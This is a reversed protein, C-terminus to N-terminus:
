SHGTAGQKFVRKTPYQEASRLVHYIPVLFPKLFPVTLRIAIFVPVLQAGFDQKILYTTLGMEIKRAGISIATEIIKDIIYYYLSDRQSINRGVYLWRLLDGDKLLLVHGVLKGEAYFLLALSNQGMNQSVGAYFQPTLVERKLEKANGHVNHWQRCLEASLGSFDEVLEHTINKERNIKLHKFLKYRYHSRMSDHYEDISDWKIDLYTNPLSPLWSFGLKTLEKRYAEIEHTTEFDRVVTILCREKISLRTIVKKLEHLFKTKDVHDELLFQPTNLTVPSGCETINIKLFNPIKKRIFVLIRKLVPSSFLALDTRIKCFPILAVPLDNSYFLIFHCSIDQMGSNEITKWFSRGLTISSNVSLRDWDEEPVDDFRDYVVHKFKEDALLSRM